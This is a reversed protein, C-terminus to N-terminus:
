GEGDTAPPADLEISTVDAVKLTELTGSCRFALIPGGEAWRVAVDNACYRIGDTTTITMACDIDYM